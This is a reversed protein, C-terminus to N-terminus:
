SDVNAGGRPKRWVGLLGVGILSWCTLFVIRGLPNELIPNMIISITPYSHDDKNVNAWIYAFLESVAMALALSMWVWKTRNMLPTASPKPGHDRYYTLWMAFGLLVILVLVDLWSNRKNFLLVVSGVLIVLWVIRKGVQKREPMGGPILRKWDAIMYVCVFGFYIADVTAGRLTQFVVLFAFVPLWPNIGKLLRKM